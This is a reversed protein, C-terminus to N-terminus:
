APLELILLEITISAAQLTGAILIEDKPRRPRRFHHCGERLSERAASSEEVVDRETAWAGRINALTWKM